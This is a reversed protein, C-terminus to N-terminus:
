NCNEYNHIIKTEKICKSSNNDINSIFKEADEKTDFWLNEDEHMPFEKYFPITWLFYVLCQPYFKSIENGNQLLQKVEHIRYKPKEM